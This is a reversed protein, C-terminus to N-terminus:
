RVEVHLVAGAMLAVAIIVMPFAVRPGWVEAGILSLFAVGVGVM